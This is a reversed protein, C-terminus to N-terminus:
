TGMRVPLSMRTRDALAQFAVENGQWHKVDPLVSSTQNLLVLRYAPSSQKSPSVHWHFHAPMTAPTAVPKSTATAIVMAVSESANAVCAKMFRHTFCRGRVRIYDRTPMDM